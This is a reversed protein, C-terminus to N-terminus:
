ETQEKEQLPKPQNAAKQCRHTPPSTVKVFTTIRVKCKPCHWDKRRSNRGDM